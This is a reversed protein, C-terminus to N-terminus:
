SENVAGQIVKMNEFDPQRSKYEGYDRNAFSPKGTANTKPKWDWNSNFSQWSRSVCIEIAQNFGIGAKASENSILTCVAKTIPAKKAKRLAIFGDSLDGNVGYLSLLEKENIKDKKAHTELANARIDKIKNVNNLQKCQQKDNTQDDTAREDAREDARENPRESDQYKEYNCITIITTLDNTEFDIMSHKKLLELFRKVKNQSWKWRTQLTIQSMAVQGRNCKVIRGKILFEKYDHNASLILDIWALSKAPEDFNFLWHKQFDRHLCVWGAM